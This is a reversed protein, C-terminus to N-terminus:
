TYHAVNGDTLPGHRAWTRPGLWDRPIPAM